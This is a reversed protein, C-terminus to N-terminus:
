ESLVFRFALSNGFKPQSPPSFALNALVGGGPFTALIKGSVGPPVSRSRKVDVTAKTSGKQYLEPYVTVNDTHVRHFGM